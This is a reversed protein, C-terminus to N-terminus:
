QDGVKEGGTDCGPAGIIAGERTWLKWGGGSGGCTSGGVRELLGVVWFWGSERNQTSTVVGRSTRVRRKM